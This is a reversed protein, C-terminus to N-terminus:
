ARGHIDELEFVDTYLGDYRGWSPCDFSSGLIVAVPGPASRCRPPTLQSAMDSPCIYGSVGSPMGSLTKGDAECANRLSDTLTREAAGNDVAELTVRRRLNLRPGFLSVGIFVGAGIEPTTDSGWSVTAGSCLWTGGRVPQLRHAAGSM